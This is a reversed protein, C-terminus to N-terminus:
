GLRDLIRRALLQPDVRYRGEDIQQKLAAVKQADVGSRRKEALARAKDSITVQAAENDNSTVPTAAPAKRHARKASALTTRASADISHSQGRM